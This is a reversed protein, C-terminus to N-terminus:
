RCAFLTSCLSMLVDLRISVLSMSTCIPSKPNAVRMCPAPPNYAPWQQEHVCALRTSQLIAARCRLCNSTTQGSLQEQASSGTQQKERCILATFWLVGVQNPCWVVHRWLQEAALVVAEFRIDPSSSEANCAHCLQSCDVGRWCGTLLLDLSGQSNAVFIAYNSPLPTYSAM